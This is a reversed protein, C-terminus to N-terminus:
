MCVYVYEHVCVLRARESCVVDSLRNSSADQVISDVTEQADAINSGIIGTPGRKLWGTVFLGPVPTASDAASLVRGGASPVVRRAADFPVGVIPQPEYGISKLVFRTPITLLEGTGVTKQAGAAGTLRTRELVVSGVANPQDPAPEFRVPNWYYSLLVLRDVSGKVDGTSARLMDDYSTRPVAKLIDWQRKKGRDKALEDMSASANITETMDREAVQVRCQPVRTLERLEATTYQAQVPGRRGVLWVSHRQAAAADLAAMAPSSIDTKRLPESPQALVRACDIAVNGTCPFYDRAAM